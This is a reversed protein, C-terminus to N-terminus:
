IKIRSGGSGPVASDGRRSAQRWGAGMESWRQKDSLRAETVRPKAQDSKGRVRGPKGCAPKAPSPFGM